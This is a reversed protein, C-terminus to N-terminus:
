LKKLRLRLLIYSMIVLIRFNMKSITDLSFNTLKNHGYNNKCDFKARKGFYISLIKPLFKM